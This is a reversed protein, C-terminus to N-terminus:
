KPPRALPIDKLEFAWSKEWVDTVLELEIAHPPVAKAFDSSSVSVNMTQLRDTVHGGAGWGGVETAHPKDGPGLFRIKSALLLAYLVPRKERATRFTNLLIRAEWQTRLDAYGLEDLTATILGLEKKDGKVPKEFRIKHVEEPFYLTIRGKLSRLKTAGKPVSALPITEVASSKAEGEKPFNLFRTSHPLSSLDPDESPAVEVAGGQDDTMSDIRIDFWRPHVGPEWELDLWLESGGGQLSSRVAGLIALPGQAARPTSPAKGRTLEIAIGNRQFWVGASRCVTELADFLPANSLSATVRAKPNATGIRLETGAAKSLADLADMLPTDKFTLTIRKAPAWHDKRKRGLEIEKLIDRCRARVEAAAEEAAKELHKVFDDGSATLADAAEEREVPSDSDLKQILELARRRLEDEQPLILAALLLARLM